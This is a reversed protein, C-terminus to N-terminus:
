AASATYSTSAQRINHLKTALGGAEEIAEDVEQFQMTIRGIPSFVSRSRAGLLHRALRDSTRGGPLTVEPLGIPVDVTIIAPREPLDLIENLPRDLLRVEGTTFNGLVARWKEKFGDVGCLWVM